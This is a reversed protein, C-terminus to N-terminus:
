QTDRELIVRFVRNRTEGERKICKCFLRNKERRIRLVRGWLAISLRAVVAQGAVWVGQFYHEGVRWDLRM